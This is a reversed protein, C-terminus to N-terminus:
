GKVEARRFFYYGAALAPVLNVVLGVAAYQVASTVTVTVQPTWHGGFGGQLVMAGFPQFIYYFVTKLLFDGNATPLLFMYEQEGTQLSVVM